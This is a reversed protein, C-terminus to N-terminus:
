FTSNELLGKGLFDDGVKGMLNVKLGLTKLNIGTNSVPGGSSIVIEDMNILKGPIFLKSIDRIGMDPFKPILDICIHGAVVVDYKKNM